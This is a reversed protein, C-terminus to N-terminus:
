RTTWLTLGPFSPGSKWRRDQVQGALSTQRSIDPPSDPLQVRSRPNLTWTIENRDVGRLLVPVIGRGYSRNLTVVVLFKAWMDQQPPSRRQALLPLQEVVHVSESRETCSTRSLRSFPSITLQRSMYESKEGSM